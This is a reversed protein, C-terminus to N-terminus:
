KIAFDIAYFAQLYSLLWSADSWLIAAWHKASPATGSIVRMHLLSHREVPINADDVVVNGHCSVCGGVAM